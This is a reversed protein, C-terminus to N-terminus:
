PAQGKYNTKYIVNVYSEKNGLSCLGISEKLVGLHINIKKNQNEIIKDLLKIQKLSIKPYIEAYMSTEMNICIKRVTKEITTIGPLIIKKNRLFDISIRVLSFPDDNATAKQKIYKELSLSENENFLHYGYWICIEEVHKFRTARREGYHEFDTPSVHLQQSIYDLMNSPIDKIDTFLWGPYRLCCLQVAFGIKNVDSRHSLAHSIDEESLTYHKAIIYDDMDESLGTLEKRQDESLIYNDM